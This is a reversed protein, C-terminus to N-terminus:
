EGETITATIFVSKEPTRPDNSRIYISRRLRATKREGSSRHFNPDFNVVMEATKGPEIVRTDISAKTCGCSTSVHYIELNSEGINKVLFTYSLEQPPVRGFDYQTPIVQIRPPNKKQEEAGQGTRAGAFILTALIAAFIITRVVVNKGMSQRQIVETVM